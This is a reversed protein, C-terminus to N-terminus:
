ENNYPDVISLLRDIDLNLDGEFSKVLDRFEVQFFYM